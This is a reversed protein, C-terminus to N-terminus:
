TTNDSHRDFTESYAHDMMEMPNTNEAKVADMNLNFQALDNAGANM